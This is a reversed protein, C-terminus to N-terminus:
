IVLHVRLIYFFLKKFKFLRHSNNLKNPSNVMFIISLIIITRDVEFIVSRLKIPKHFPAILLSGNFQLSEHIAILNLQTIL